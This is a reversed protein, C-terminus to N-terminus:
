GGRCDLVLVHVDWGRSLALPRSRHRQESQLRHRAPANCPHVLGPGRHDLDLEDLRLSWMADERAVARAMHGAEPHRFGEDGLSALGQDSVLTGRDRVLRGPLSWRGPHRKSTTAAGTKAHAAPSLQENRAFNPSFLWKTM